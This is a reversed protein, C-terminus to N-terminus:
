RYVKLKSYNVALKKTEFYYFLAVFRLEIIKNHYIM